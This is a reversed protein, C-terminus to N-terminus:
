VPVDFIQQPESQVPLNKIKELEAMKKRGKHKQTSEHRRLDRKIPTGGFDPCVDCQFEFDKEHKLKIHRKFNSADSSAYPCQGCKYDRRKEHVAKMHNNFHMKRNGVYDCGEKECKRILM